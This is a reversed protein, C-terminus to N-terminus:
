EAAKRHPCIGGNRQRGRNCNACLLRYIDPFGAKIIQRYVTFPTVVRYHKNGGGNVHDLELFMPETEGCCVCKSGYAEVIALRVAAYKRRSEEIHKRRVEPDTKYRENRQANQRDYRRRRYEPDTKRKDIQYAKVQENGKAYKDPNAARWLKMYAAKEAKEDETTDAM